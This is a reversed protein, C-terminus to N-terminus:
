KLGREKKILDFAAQIDKAKETYLRIMEPTLGQSALKDPHYKLMLRKHAKKLEADSADQTVGLIDYAAKLKDSNSESQYSNGQDYSSDNGYNSSGNDYSYSDQYNGRSFMMEQYRIEILREMSQVSVGLLRALNILRDHEEQELIGDSLAIQIQMELVYNIFAFNGSVLSQLQRVKYAVDFDPQKGEYFAGKALQRNSEDLQMMDMIQNAKQIHDNNIAGAGRAIYGMLAFTINILAQNYNADQSFARRASANQRQIRAKNDFAGGIFWGIIAGVFNFLLFGLVAGIIRGKM